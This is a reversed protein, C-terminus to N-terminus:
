WMLSHCLGIEKMFLYLFILCWIYSEKWYCPMALHRYCLNYCLQKIFGMQKSFEVCIGSLFSSSGTHSVARSYLYKGWYHDSLRHQAQGKATVIVRVGGKGGEKLKHAMRPASWACLTEKLSSSFLPTRKKERGLGTLFLSWSEGVWLCLSLQASWMHSSYVTNSCLFTM